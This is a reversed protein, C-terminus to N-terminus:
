KISIENLNELTTNPPEERNLIDFLFKGNRLLYNGIIGYLAIIVISQLFIIVSKKFLEPNQLALLFSSLFTLINTVASYICYLGIIKVTLWVIESKKM